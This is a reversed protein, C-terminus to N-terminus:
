GFERHFSHERRNGGSSATGSTKGGAVAMLAEDQLAQNPDPPMALHFTDHTNLVVNVDVDMPVDVGHERLVEKPREEVERLRDEDSHCADALGQLVIGQERVYQFIGEQHINDHMTTEGTINLRTSVIWSVSNMRSAELNDM